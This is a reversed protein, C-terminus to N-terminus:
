LKGGPRRSLGRLLASAANPLRRPAFLGVLGNPLFLVVAIIVFGLIAIYFTTDGWNMWFIRNVIFLAAGGLAPWLLLALAIRTM